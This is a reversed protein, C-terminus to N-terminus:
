ISMDMDVDSLKHVETTEFFDRQQLALANAVLRSPFNVIMTNLLTINGNYIRRAAQINNELDWIAKSLTQFQEHAKLQPYSEVVLNIKELLATMQKDANKLEDVSMGSRVASIEVFVEHEHKAYQKCIDRMKTLTDYRRILIVDIDSASEDVKIVLRNLKNETNIKWYVGAVILLVFMIAIIEM